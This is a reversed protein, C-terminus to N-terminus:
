HQQQKRHESPTQGFIKKFTNSFYALDSYGMREAIESVRLTSKELLKSAEKMRISTVYDTFNIGTQQKFLKCLYSPNLHVHAAAESLSIGVHASAHIQTIVSQIPSRGDAVKLVSVEERDGAGLARRQSEAAETWRVLCIKMMDAEVPKLMYDFVGLRIAQQAYTFDDHGSVMVVETALDMERISELLAMGDMLPMRIDSMVLDVSNSRLFDWAELGNTAEFVITFPLGTKEIVKRLTMRVWKEDEALLIKYM